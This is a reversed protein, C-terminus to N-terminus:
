LFEVNKVNFYKTLAKEVESTESRDRYFNSSFTLKLTTSNKDFATVQLLYDIFPRGIKSEHIKCFELIEPISCLEWKIPVQKAEKSDSSQTTPAPIEETLPKHGITWQLSEVKRSEKIEKYDVELHTKQNIEKKARNIVKRKLDFYNKYEEEAIGCWDKLDVITTERKKLPSYQSLLEYIRIAYISKFKLSDSISIKTFSNKLQLLYPKLKPDFCLVVCGEDQKYLASSLWSVQLLTKAGPERIKLTRNMLRETVQQLEDYLGDVRLGAIKAFDSVLLRHEKFDEDETKIQSLLWLIVHSEQLSLRYRAEVLDNSKIVFQNRNIPAIM